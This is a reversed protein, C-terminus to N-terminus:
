NWLIRLRLRGADDEYTEIRRIQGGSPGDDLQTALDGHCIMAATSDMTLAHSIDETGGIIPSPMYVVHQRPSLDGFRQRAEHIKEDYPRRATRSFENQLFELFTSCLVTATMSYADLFYVNESDILGNGARRYAYQDGFATEAICWYANARGSWAFKWKRESNWDIGDVGDTVGLGFMRLYGGYAEIGNSESLIIQHSPPLYSFAKREVESSFDRDFGKSLRVGEINRLEDILMTRMYASEMAIVNILTRITVGAGRTIKHREYCRPVM